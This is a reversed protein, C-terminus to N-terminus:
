EQARCVLDTCVARQKSSQCLRQRRSEVHGKVQWVETIRGLEPIVTKMLVHYMATLLTTCILSM